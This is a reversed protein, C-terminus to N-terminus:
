GWRSILSAMEPRVRERPAETPTGLLIWGALAEPVPAHLDLGLLRLAEADEGYWDTIWNAGYGMAAAAILLTTCVAQASARQEAVPKGGLRPASVVAVALPPAALKELSAAAKGPNAQSPAIARLVEVFRAKGEGALLVFRWPTMKGHDPVRAALRLLDDLEEGQPAPAALHQASASRRAALLALTAPSRQPWLEAGFEPAPPVHLAAFTPDPM